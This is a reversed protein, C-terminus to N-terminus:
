NALTRNRSSGKPKEASLTNKRGGEPNRKKETRTWRMTTGTQTKETLGAPKTRQAKDQIEKIASTMSKLGSNDRKPPKEEPPAAKTTREAERTATNRKAMRPQENRPGERRNNEVHKHHRHCISNKNGTGMTRKGEQPGQRSPHRHPPPSDTGQGQHRNYKKGGPPPQQGTEAKCRPHGGPPTRRNMTEVQRQPKGNGMPSTTPPKPQKGKRGSQEQPQERDPMPQQAQAKGTETLLHATNQDAGM